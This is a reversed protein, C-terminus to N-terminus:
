EHLKIWEVVDEDDTIKIVLTKSKLTWSGLKTKSITYYLYNENVRDPEGLMDIVQQKTLTRISDSYLVENLMQDRFSYKGNEKTKWKTQEFHAASDSNVKGASSSHNDSSNCAIIAFMMVVVPITQFTTTFARM